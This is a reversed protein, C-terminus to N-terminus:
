DYAFARDAITGMVPALQRAYEPTLHAEDIYVLTDGVIVPCREPTCFLATIDAYQGGGARTAAAEAAIGIENVAVLRLPSCAAMDDLHGSLCIPVDSLPDPIPGLVLVMAGTDRLQSVLRPLAALWASDYSTVGYEATYHRRTGIVILRPREARLRDLIQSRWQECETYKRHLRPNTIQLDLLPCADKAMTELRWGRQAAVQRFGPSWMAANSDGVLAVTTTSATDGAACEPQTIEFFSRLCGDLLLAPREAAVNALRPKLNSPVARLEASAAVATQVQAFAQQMAANYVDASEGSRIPPATVALAPAAPGRGVPLPMLVLLAASVCVTGATAFGGLALSRAASRRLPAALRLPNEIVRVTIVAMAGSVLVTVLRSALGLPHGLLPGALLLVPWHWLYWSYSARGVVRVPPLSLARGVGRVPTACGAGIVLATGLVPLLAAIGPYPTTASVRACTLLVVGLGIWGVIAAWPPPLRRWQAATFAVAGGIALEWARTPMLFFAAAPWVYTLAVSGVFSATGILVLLFFYPRASRSATPGV